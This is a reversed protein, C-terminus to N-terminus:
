GEARCSCYGVIRHTVKLFEGAKDDDAQLQDIEAQTFFDTLRDGHDAWRVDIRTVVDAGNLIKQELNNCGSVAQNFRSQNTISNSGRFATADAALDGLDLWTPLRTHIVQDALAFNAATTM